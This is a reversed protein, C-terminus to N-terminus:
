LSAQIEKLRDEVAVAQALLDRLLIELPGGKDCATKHAERIDSVMLNATQAAKVISEV